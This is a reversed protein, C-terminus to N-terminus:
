HMPPPDFPSPHWESEILTAEYTALSYGDVHTLEKLQYRASGNDTVITFVKTAEDFHLYDPNTEHVFEYSILAEQDWHDVTVSLHKGAGWHSRFHMM